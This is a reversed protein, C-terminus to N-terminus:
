SSGLARGTGWGAGRGGARPIDRPPQVTGPAPMGAGRQMAVGSGERGWGLMNVIFQPTTLLDIDHLDPLVDVLFYYLHGVAIGLLALFISGGLALSEPCALPSRKTCLADCTM